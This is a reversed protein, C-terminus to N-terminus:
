PCARHHLQGRAEHQRARGRDRCLPDVDRDHVLDARAPECRFDQRQARLPVRVTAQAQLMNPFCVCGLFRPSGHQCPQSPCLVKRSPHRPKPTTTEPSMLTLAQPPHPPPPRDCWNEATFRYTADRQWGGCTPLYTNLSSKTYILENIPSYDMANFPFRDHLDVPPASGGGWPSEVPCSGPESLDIYMNQTVTVDM